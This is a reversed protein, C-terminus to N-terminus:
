IKWSQNIRKWEFASYNSIEDINVRLTIEREQWEYFNFSFIWSGDEITTTYVYHFYYNTEDDQWTEDDDHYAMPYKLLLM